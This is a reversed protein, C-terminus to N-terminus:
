GDHGGGASAWTWLIVDLLRLDSSDIVFHRNELVRCIQSLPGAVERMSMLYAFIQMDISFNGPGRNQKLNAGDALYRCVVRDRVPFLYPRKRACLKAAFVWANTDENQDAMLSRFVAYLDWMHDLATRVAPDQIDLSTIPLGYPITRLLELVHTRRRSPAFLLERVQTPKIKMSLMGVALLDAAVVDDTPNPELQTLLAGAYDRGPDYYHQIRDAVAEPDGALAQLAQRVAVDRTDEDLPLWTAPLDVQRGDKYQFKRSGDM